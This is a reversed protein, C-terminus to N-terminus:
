RIFLNLIKKLTSEDPVLSTLEKVSKILENIDADDAVLGKASKEKLEKELKKYIKSPDDDQYPEKYITRFTEIAFKVVEEQQDSFKALLFEIHNRIVTATTAKFAYKENLDREKGYQRMAFGIVFLLPSTLTLRYITNSLEPIKGDSGKIFLIYIMIGLAIIALIFIVGWIIYAKFLVKARGQFANAFGTDTILDTIKEIEEKSASSQELNAEIEGKIKDSAQKNVKIADLNKVSEEKFTDIEKKLTNSQKHIAQVEDFIAKLGTKEDEIKAQIKLFAEYANTMNQIKQQVESLTNKITELTQQAENKATEINAKLNRSSSLLENIEGDVGTIKGKIETFESYANQMSEINSKVKALNGTLENLATQSQNKFNEIENKLEEVKNKSDVTWQVNVEVGDEEDELSKKLKEFKESFSQVNALLRKANNYDAKIQELEQKLNEYNNDEQDTM